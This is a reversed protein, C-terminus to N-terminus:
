PIVMTRIKAVIHARDQVCNNELMVRFVGGSANKPLWVDPHVNTGLDIRRILTESYDTFENPDAETKGAFVWESVEGDGGDEIIRYVLQIRFYYNTWATAPRSVLIVSDGHAKIDNDHIMQDLGGVVVTENAAHTVRGDSDITLVPVQWDSGYRGSVVGTSALEDSGVSDSDIESSGVANSRIEEAGISDTRLQLDNYTGSFDGGASHGKEVDNGVDQDWDAFATGSVAGPAGDITLDETTITGNVDLSTGPNTKGIGVNGNTYSIDPGSQSWFCIMEGPTLCLWTSGDYGEFDSGTWRIVGSNQLSTDGLRLAGTGLSDQLDLREVPDVAGIGVNTPVAGSFIVNGGDNNLYLTSAAGNDRAMIENNDLSLNKGATDGLVLYGGQFPSTDSGGDVHLTVEPQTTGIGVDGNKKITMADVVTGDDNTRILFNVGENDSKYAIIGGKREVSSSNRLSFQLRADGGSNTSESKLKVLESATSSPSTDVIELKHDPTTTGIGVNGTPIASMHPANTTNDWDGDSAPGDGGFMGPKPALLSKPINPRIPIRKRERGSTTKEEGSEPLGSPLARSGELAPSETKPPDSKDSKGPRDAAVGSQEIHTITHSAPTAREVNSEPQWLKIEEFCAGDRNNFVREGTPTRLVLDDFGDNNLDILRASSASLDKALGSPSTEDFFLQGSQNRFLTFGEAHFLFLDLWGDSDYDGFFGSIGVGSGLPFFLITLDEFSGGGLNRFFRNGEPHLVYLDRLGDNDVDGWIHRVPLPNAPTGSLATGCSLFLCLCVMLLHTKM